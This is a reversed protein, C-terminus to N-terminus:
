FRCAVHLYTWKFYIIVSFFYFAELYKKEKTKQEKIEIKIDKFVKFM